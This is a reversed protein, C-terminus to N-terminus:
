IGIEPKLIPATQFTSKLISNAAQHNWGISPSDM